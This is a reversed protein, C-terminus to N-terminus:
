FPVLGGRGDKGDVGLVGVDEGVGFVLDPGEEGFAPGPGGAVGLVVPGRLQPRDDEVLEANVELGGVDGAEDPQLERGLEFLDQDRERGLDEAAPDDEGLVEKDM